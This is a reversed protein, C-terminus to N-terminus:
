FGGLSALREPTDMTGVRSAFQLSATALTNRYTKINTSFFPLKTPRHHDMLLFPSGNSGVYGLGWVRFGLTAQLNYGAKLLPWFNPVSSGLDEEGRSRGLLLLLMSYILRNVHKLKQVNFAARM